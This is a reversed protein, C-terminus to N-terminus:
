RRDLVESMRPKFFGPGPQLPASGGTRRAPRARPRGPPPRHLTGGVTLAAAILVLNKFIYQGQLTPAYPVRGEQFTLGPAILLPAFTGVMHPALLVLALRTTFPQLFALGIAVEWWGIIVLWQEPSFLPLADVTTIVLPDVPSLGLPKLLGFWVFVIALALRLAVTSWQHMCGIAHRDIPKLNLMRNSPM